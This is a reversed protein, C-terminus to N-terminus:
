LKSELVEIAIDNASAIALRIGVLRVGTTLAATFDEDTIGAEDIGTLPTIGYLVGEADTFNAYILDFLAPEPNSVIINARRGSSVNFFFDGTLGAEIVGSHACGNANDKIKDVIIIQAM